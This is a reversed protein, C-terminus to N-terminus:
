AVCKERKDAIGYLSDTGDQSTFHPHLCFLGFTDSM